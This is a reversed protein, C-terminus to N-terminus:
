KTAGINQEDSAVTSVFGIFFISVHEINSDIVKFTYFTSKIKLRM